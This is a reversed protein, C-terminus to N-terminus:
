AVEVLDDDSEGWMTSYGDLQWIHYQPRKGKQYITGKVPNSVFEGISNQLKIEHIVVDRGDWTQYKKDISVKM